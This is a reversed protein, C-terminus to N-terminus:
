DWRGADRNSLNAGLGATIEKRLNENVFVAHGRRALVNGAGDKVVNGNTSDNNFGTIIGGRKTFNSRSNAWGRVGGGNVRAINGTITGGNMYFTANHQQNM